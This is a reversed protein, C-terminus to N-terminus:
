PMPAEDTWTDTSPDYAETSDLWDDVGGTGTGGFVYIRGDNGTAAAAGYRGHNLHKVYVWTNVQAHASAAFLALFALAQSRLRICQKMSGFSRKMVLIQQAKFRLM